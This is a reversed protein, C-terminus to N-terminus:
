DVKGSAGGQRGKRCVLAVMITLTQLEKGQSEADIVVKVLGGISSPTWSRAGNINTSVM